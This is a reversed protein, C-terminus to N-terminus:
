IDSLSREWKIKEGNKIIETNGTYDVYRQIIVDVYQCSLEMGYCKRNTKESAILTSGSGLFLDLVIDDSKSSNQVAKQVLEIPKMTPHLESTRPRECNWITTQKRDGYYSHSAGELWGYLIPEHQSHYDGMSLVLKDKSWIINCSFHYGSEEFANRFEKGAKDSYCVYIPSGSKSAIKYSGYFDLCFSYFEEKTMNDNEITRQKYRPNNNGGYNVNYLPDTFVMDAKQGNMLKEVDEIKTSDGCLVRHEGLEYLDGLRSKPQDPVEPVEDDKENPEEIYYQDLGEMGYHELESLDYQSSLEDYNWTGYGLNDKVVFEKMAKVSWNSADFIHVEKNGIAMEAKLRMNGGLVYYDDAPTFTSTDQLNGDNDKISSVKLLGKAVVIPRAERMEPTDIISQKLKEFMEETIQRPNEPNEKILNIDIQM